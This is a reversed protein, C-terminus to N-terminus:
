GGVIVADATSKNVQDMLQRTQINRINKEIDTTKDSHSALLHAVFVETVLSCGYRYPLKIKVQGFGKDSLTDPCKSCKWKTFKPEVFPYKTIIALGSCKSITVRGDCRSLTLNDEYCM